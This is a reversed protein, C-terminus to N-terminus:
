YTSFNQDNSTPADSTSTNLDSLLNSISRRLGRSTISKEVLDEKISELTTVVFKMTPRENPSHKSCLLGVRLLSVLYKYVKNEEFDDGGVDIFLDNDIVEKVRDPFALNVWSHLNLDGIFMGSTPQKRTLIELLLIGYSYVDGQSSVVVGLGYKPAIYGVSRRLALTSSLSGTSSEGILKAIGFDTVHAAMDEDLLVNSPKIDCHM